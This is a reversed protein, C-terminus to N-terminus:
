KKGDLAALAEKIALQLVTVRDQLDTIIKYQRGNCDQLRKIEAAHHVHDLADSM